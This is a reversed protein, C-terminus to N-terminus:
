HISKCRLSSTTLKQSHNIFILLVRMEELPRDDLPPHVSMKSAPTTPENSGRPPTALLTRALMTHPYGIVFFGGAHKGPAKVSFAPVLWTSPGAVRPGEGNLEADLRNTCDMSGM